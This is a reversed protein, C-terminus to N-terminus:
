AGVKLKEAIQKKLEKKIEAVEEKKIIVKPEKKTKKKARAPQTKRKTRRKIESDIASIAKSFQPATEVLKQKLSVLEEESMEKLPKEPISKTKDIAAEKAGVLFSKAAESLSPGASTMMRELMEKIMQATERDKQFKRELEQQKLQFEKERLATEYRLKELQVDLDTLQKKQLTRRDIWQLLKDTMEFLDFPSKQDKSLIKEIKQNLNNIIDKYQSEKLSNVTDTFRQLIQNMTNLQTKQSETMQQQLTTIQQNMLEILKLTPDIQPTQQKQQQMQAQLLQIKSEYDQKLTSITQQLMQQFMQMQNQMLNTMQEQFSKIIEKVDTNDRKPMVVPRGTNPDIGLTANGSSLDKLQKMVLLASLRDMTKSIVEDVGGTVGSPQPLGIEPMLETAQDQSVKPIEPVKPPKPIEITPVTQEAERKKLEAWRKVLFQAKTRSIGLGQVMTELLDDADRVIDPDRHLINALRKIMNDSIIGWSSIFEIFERVDPDLKLLLEEYTSTPNSSELKVEGEEKKKIQELKKEFKELESTPEATTVVAQDIVEDPIPVKKKSIRKLAEEKSVKLNGEEDMIGAKILEKKAQYATSVSVGAMDAIQELTSDPNMIWYRKTEDKRSRPM